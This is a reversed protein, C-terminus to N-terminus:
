IDNEEQYGCYNCHLLSHTKSIININLLM